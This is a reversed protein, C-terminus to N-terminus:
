QTMTVPASAPAILPSVAADLDISRVFSNQFEDYTWDGTTHSVGDPPLTQIGPKGKQVVAMYDIWIPLAVTAGFERNGLSAPTDYGLWAVATTNGGYGAFWGDVADSSTGTKGALDQRGLRKAASAATGSITVDNLMSTIVFANRPDLVRDTGPAPVEPKYDYLTAGHSDTVKQILYPMVRLGGNAFSSYATAMQVPTM